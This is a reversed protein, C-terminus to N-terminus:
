LAAKDCVVLTVLVLVLVAIVLAAIVTMVIVLGVGLFCPSTSNSYTLPQSHM